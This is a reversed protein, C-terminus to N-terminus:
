TCHGADRQAASSWRVADRDLRAAVDRCLGAFNVSTRQLRAANFREVVSAQATLGVRPGRLGASM